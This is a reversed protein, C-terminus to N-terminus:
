AGAKEKLRKLVDEKPGDLAVRGDNIVVLRDCLSLPRLRHTAIVITKDKGWDAMSQIFTEETQDDMSATPEDMLLIAPDRLITRALFLSQKQGGSLGEGAENVMLDLGRPNNEILNLVGAVECAAIMQEDTASPRAIALNERITGRLLAASQSQYGIARRVDHPHIFSM